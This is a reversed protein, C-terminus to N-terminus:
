APEAYTFIVGSTIGASANAVTLLGSSSLSMGQPLARSDAALGFTGGPRVGTPLTVTLNFTLNAGTPFSLWPAPNWQATTPAQSPAPAPPTGGIPPAPTQSQSPLADSVASGGCGSLLVASGFLGFKLAKRRGESLM